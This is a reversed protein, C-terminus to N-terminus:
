ITVVVLNNSSRARSIQNRWATGCLSFALTLYFGRAPRPKRPRHRHIGNHAGPASEYRRDRACKGSIDNRAVPSVKGSCLSRAPPRRCSTFGPGPGRPAAPEGRDPHDAAAAACPASSAAPDFFGMQFTSTEVQERGAAASNAQSGEALAALIAPRGTTPRRGCFVRSCVATKGEADM